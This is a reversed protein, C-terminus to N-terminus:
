ADPAPPVCKFDRENTIHWRLPRDTPLAATDLHKRITYIIGPNKALESLAIRSNPVVGLAATGDRHYIVLPSPINDTPPSSHLAVRHNTHTSRQSTVYRYWHNRVADDLYRPTTRFLKCLEDRTCTWGLRFPPLRLYVAKKSSAQPKKVLAGLERM